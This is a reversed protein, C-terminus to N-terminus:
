LGTAKVSDFDKVDLERVVYTLLGYLVVVLM